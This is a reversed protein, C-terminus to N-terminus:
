KFRILDTMSKPRDDENDDVSRFEVPKADANQNKKLSANEDRLAKIEQILADDLSLEDFLYLAAREKSFVELFQDKLSVKVEESPADVASEDPTAEAPETEAQAEVEQTAEVTEAEQAEVEAEITQVEVAEVEDTKAEANETSMEEGQVKTDDEEEIHQAQTGVKSQSLFQVTQTEDKEANFSVSTHRDYGSPCIAVRRLVCSRCIAGPGEFVQGGSHEATEGEGLEELIMDQVSVSAEYEIHDKKVLIEAVKDSEGFPILAGSIVYQQGQQEFKNAYGLMENSHCWDISIRSKTPEVGDLDFVFRGLWHHDIPEGSLAVASFPATKADTGNDALYLVGDFHLSAAPIEKTMKTM